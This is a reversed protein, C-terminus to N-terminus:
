LSVSKSILHMKPLFHPALRDQRRKKEDKGEDAKGKREKRAKLEEVKEVVQDPPM